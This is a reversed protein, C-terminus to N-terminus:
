WKTKSSMKRREAARGHQINYEHDSTYTYRLFVATHLDIKLIGEILTLQFTWIQSPTVLPFYKQLQKNTTCSNNHRINTHICHTNLHGTHIQLTKTTNLKCNSRLTHYKLNFHLSNRKIRKKKKVSKFKRKDHSRFSFSLCKTVLHLYLSRNLIPRHM